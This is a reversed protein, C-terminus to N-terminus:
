NFCSKLKRFFFFIWFFTVVCQPWLFWVLILDFKEECLYSQLVFRSKRHRLTELTEAYMVLGKAQRWILLNFSRFNNEYKVMRWIVTPISRYDILFFPTICRIVIRLRHSLHQSNGSLRMDEGQAVSQYKLLDRLVSDFALSADIAYFLSLFFSKVRRSSLHISTLQSPM